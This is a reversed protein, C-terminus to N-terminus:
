AGGLYRLIARHADPARLQSVVLGFTALREREDSAEALMLVKQLPGLVPDYGPVALWMPLRQVHALVTQFFDRTLEGSLTRAWTVVMALELSAARGLEPFAMQAADLARLLWDRLADPSAEHVSLLFPLVELWALTPNARWRARDQLAGAAAPTLAFDGPRLASVLEDRDFSLGWAGAAALARRASRRADADIVADEAMTDLLALTGFAKIGLSRAAERIFRDDSYVPRDTRQALLLTAFVTQFEQRGANSAYQETLQPDSEPGVAPAIEFQKAISLMGAARQREEDVEHASVERVGFGGEPTHLTEGSPRGLTMADGDIDELSETVLMSGPLIARIADLTPASLRSAVFLSSADWVASAGVGDRAAERDALDRDEMAYGLPVGHLRSWAKGIGGNSLAALANVPARGDIVAQGIEQQLRPANGALDTFFKEIEKPTEPAPITRIMQSDPFREQFESFSERVRAETRRDLTIEDGDAALSTTIILAELTEIAREFRDSVEILRALADSPHLARSLIEGYLAARAPTDPALNEAEALTWADAHRSLRALAFLLNWPANVSAPLARHWEESAVRLAEYDRNEGVIETRAAFAAERTGTEISDDRALATFEEAADTREDLRRLAEALALRDRPDGDRRILERSRDKVKAWEGALGAFDRMRRLSSTRGALPLLIQQARLQDGVLSAREARMALEIDPKESAVIAAATEDWPVDEFTIAASLLAFAARRTVQPDDDGLIERLTEAAAARGEAPASQAEADARLVRAEAGIEQGALFDIVLDPRLAMGAIEALYLRADTAMAEPAKVSALVRSAEGQNGALLFAEAARARLLASEEARGQAGVRTALAEFTRAAQSVSAADAPSGEEVLRHARTIELTAGLEILMDNEPDLADALEFEARAGEEDGQDLLARARTQHLSMRDLDTQPEVAGLQELAQAADASLRAEAILLAPHRPALDRARDLHQQARELAGQMQAAGAARVLQRAKENSDSSLREARLFAAEAEALFQTTALIRGCAALLQPTGDELDGDRVTAALSAAGDAFLRRLRAAADSDDKELAALQRDFERDEPTYSIGGAPPADIPAVATEGAAQRMSADLSDDRRQFQGALMEETRQLIQETQAALMAELADADIGAPISPPQTDLRDTIHDLQRAQAESQELLVKLDQAIQLQAAPPTALADLIEDVGARLRQEIMRRAAVGALRDSPAAKAAAEEAVIMIRSVLEQPSYRGGDPQEVFSTFHAKMRSRSDDIGFILGCSLAIFAPQLYCRSRIQAWPMDPDPKIRKEFNKWFLKNEPLKSHLFGAADGSAKGLECFSTIVTLLAAPDM